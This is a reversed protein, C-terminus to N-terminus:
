RREQEALWEKFTPLRGPRGNEDEEHNAAQKKALWERFNKFTAKARDATERVQPPNGAALREEIKLHQALITEPNSLVYARAAAVQEATLQYVRCIESETVTPDLFSDLLHYVTLRTGQIEPGQVQVDNGPMTEEGKMLLKGESFREEDM